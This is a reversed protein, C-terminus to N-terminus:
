PVPSADQVSTTSPVHGSGSLKLVLNDLLADRDRTECEWITLVRWGTAILQDRQQKDRAVTRAFKTEWFETRTRPTTARRCGTHRHWYCGHVFIVTRLRPLVIDPKGPLDRRHLRFRYGLAHLLRRVAMEPGTDKGKVQAM